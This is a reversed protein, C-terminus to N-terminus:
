RGLNERRDSARRMRARPIPSGTAIRFSCLHLIRDDVVLAAGSVGDGRLRVDEGLGVAPFSRTDATGVRKLFAAASDPEPVSSPLAPEVADLAYSRVLKPLLSRLTSRADFLDVGVIDSNLAFVAGAQGDVPQIAQVYEEIGGSFRHYIDAMASTPSEVGMRRRKDEIHDWVRSQDSSRGEERSLSESVQTMRESRGAAYQARPAPTSERSMHSWRGAEVCSVPVILETAAPVLITLNFVRNQKVGVIEEGDLLLVQRDLTNVVRLSSVSASDSVETVHIGCVGLAEDLTLYPAWTEDRNVLPFMTLNRFSIPEGISIGALASDIIAM